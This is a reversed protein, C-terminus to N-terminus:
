VYAVGNQEYQRLRYASFALEFESEVPSSGVTGAIFCFVILLLYPERLFDPIYDEVAM